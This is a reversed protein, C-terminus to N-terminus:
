TSEQPLGSSKRGQGSVIDLIEEERQLIAREKVKVQEELAMVQDMKEGLSKSLNEMHHIENQIASFQDSLEEHWPYLVLVQFFLATVGM